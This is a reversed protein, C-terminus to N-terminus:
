DVNDSIEATLNSVLQGSESLYAAVSGNLVADLNITTGFWYIPM